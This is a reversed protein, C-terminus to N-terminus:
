TALSKYRVACLGLIVFAALAFPGFLYRLAPAGTAGYALRLLPLIDTIWAPAFLLIAVAYAAGVAAMAILEPRFPRYGGGLRFLLWLELLAPTILFYHKLAFGLAAGVGVLIGFMTPVRRKEARAAILAGYPLVGILVIQERQGTHTWPMAALTLAAFALLPARREASINELLRNTAALALAVLDGIVVILVPVIPLHLIAAI